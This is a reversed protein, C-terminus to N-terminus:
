ESEEAENKNAEAQESEEEDGASLQLKIGKSLILESTRDWLEKINKETWESNRINCVRCDKFLSGSEKLVDKSALCYLITQMGEDTTRYLAKACTQNLKGLPGELHRYLGTNVYGPDVSYAVLGEDIYKHALEKTFLHLALKSSRYVKRMNYSSCKGELDDMSVINGSRFSGCVVNVIRGPSSSTGHQLLKESLLNTLLFHGVYNVGLMMDLDDSTKDQPYLIGANNVIADIKDETDVLEQCFDYVSDLSTLDMFMTRVNFSGTKSRLFFATSDRRAKTRCAVIVRAGRRALEVSLTRGMGSSGGTVVITKGDFRADADCFETTRIFNRILFILGGIVALPFIVIFAYM